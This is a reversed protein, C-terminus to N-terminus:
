KESDEKIYLSSKTFTCYLFSILLLIITKKGGLSLAHKNLKQLCVLLFELAIFGAVLAPFIYIAFVGVGSTKHGSLLYDVVIAGMIAIAVFLVIGGEYILHDMQHNGEKGHTLWSVTGVLLLPFLGFAANLFTWKFSKFWYDKYTNKRKEAM